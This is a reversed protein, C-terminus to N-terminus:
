FGECGVRKVLKELDNKILVEVNLFVFIVFILVIFIDVGFREGSGNRLYM